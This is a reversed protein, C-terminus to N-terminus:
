GQKIFFANLMNKLCDSSPNVTLIEQV